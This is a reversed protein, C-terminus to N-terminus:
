NVSLFSLILFKESSGHVLIYSSWAIKERFNCEVRVEIARKGRDRSKIKGPFLSFWFVSFEIGWSDDVLLRVFPSLRFSNIKERDRETRWNKACRASSEGVSRGKWEQVYTEWTPVKWSCVHLFVGRSAFGVARPPYPVTGLSVFLREIRVRRAGALVLSFRGREFSRQFQSSNPWWMAIAFISDPAKARESESAKGVSLSLELHWTSLSEINQYKSFAKKGVDILQEHPYKTLIIQLFLDYDLLTTCFIVYLKNKLSLERAFNISNM